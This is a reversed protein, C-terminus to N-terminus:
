VRDLAERTLVPEPADGRADHVLVLLGHDPGVLEVHVGHQHHEFLELGLLEAGFRLAHVPERGLHPAEDRLRLGGAHCAARDAVDLLLDLATRHVELRRRRLLRSLRHLLEHPLALALAPAPAPAPPVASSRTPTSTVPGKPSGAPSLRTPPRGRRHSHVVPPF